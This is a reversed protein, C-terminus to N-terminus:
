MEASIRYLIDERRYHTLRHKQTHLMVGALKRAYSIRIFASGRVVLTMLSSEFRTSINTANITNSVTRMRRMTGTYIRQHKLRMGLVSVPDIMPIMMPTSNTNVQTKEATNDSNVRAM